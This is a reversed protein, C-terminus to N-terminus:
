SSSANLGAFAVVIDVLPSLDGDKRLYAAAGAELARRDPGEGATMLVVAPGDSMNRMRRTVETGDVGMAVDMLVLSPKLTEVLLIMEEGDSAIGVVEFADHAELSSRLAESFRRDDDAIVIRTRDGPPRPGQV